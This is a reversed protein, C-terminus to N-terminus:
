FQLTYLLKKISLNVIGNSITYNFKHMKNLLINSNFQYLNANFKLLSITSIGNVSKVEGCKHRNWALVQIEMQMYIHLPRREIIQPSLCGNM